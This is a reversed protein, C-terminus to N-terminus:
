VEEVTAVKNDVIYDVAKKAEEIADEMGYFGWVSHEHTGDIKYGYVEGALYQNYTKLEGEVIQRARKRMKTSCIKSVHIFESMIKERDILVYGLQGADWRYNFPYETNSFSLVQGSHDYMYLPILISGTKKAYAILEKNQDPRTFRKTNGMDYHKHWCIWEGLMDWEKIPNEDCEDQFIQILHGNHRVTELAQNDRM